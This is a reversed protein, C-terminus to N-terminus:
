ARGGDGVGARLDLPRPATSKIVAFVSKGTALELARVASPVLCAVLEVPPTGDLRLRVARGREDPDISVVTAPLVNRASLGEPAQTAVLVDTAALGYRVLEGPEVDVRPISLQHAGLRARTTKDEDDHGVLSLSLVNEFGSLKAVLPDRPAGFVEDPSGRVLAKGQHLVCARDGLALAEDLSHTVYLIPARFRANIARLYSVIRARRPRDLSALPEDLLLARPGSLLARGLAVRQREGGSLEHPRRELLADLELISVVEDESIARPVGRSRAAGYRLNALVSLHPFLLGEQSVFGLGRERPPADVGKAADFLIEGALSIRGTRPRVLGAVVLLATTKGSGSPGFLITVGPPTELALELRFSGRELSFEVDLESV